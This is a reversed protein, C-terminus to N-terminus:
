NILFIYKIRKYLYVTDHFLIQGTRIEEAM